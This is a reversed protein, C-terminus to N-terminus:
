ISYAIQLQTPKPDFFEARSSFFVAYGGGAVYDDRAVYPCTDWRGLPAFSRLIQGAESARGSSPTRAETFCSLKEM